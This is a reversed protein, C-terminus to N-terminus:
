VWYHISLLGDQNVEVNVSLGSIPSYSLVTTEQEFQSADHYIM